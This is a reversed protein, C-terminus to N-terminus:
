TDYSYRNKTQHLATVDESAILQFTKGL